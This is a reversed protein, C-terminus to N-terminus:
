KSIYIRYNLYALAGTVLGTAFAGEYILSKQEKNMRKFLSRTHALM